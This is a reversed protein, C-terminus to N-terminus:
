SPGDRTWRGPRPRAGFPWYRVGGADMVVLEEGDREVYPAPPAGATEQAWVRSVGLDHCILDIVEDTPRALLRNIDDPTERDPRDPRDPREVVEPREARESAEIEPSAERDAATTAPSVEGRLLVAREKRLKEQLAITLRVARAVRCFGLVIDGQFLRPAPDALPAAALPAKMQAAMAECMQVGVEALRQLLASQAAFDSDAPIAAPADM